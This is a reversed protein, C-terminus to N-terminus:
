LAIEIVYINATKNQNAHWNRVFSRVCPHKAQDASRDMRGSHHCFKREMGNSGHEARRQM